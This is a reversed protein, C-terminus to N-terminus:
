HRSSDLPDAAIPLFKVDSLLALGQKGKLLQSLSQVSKEVSELITAEIALIEALTSVKCTKKM